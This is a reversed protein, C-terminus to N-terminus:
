PSDPVRHRHRGVRHSAAGALYAPDFRRQFGLQFPVGSAEIDARVAIADALSAALPKECFTPLGRQLAARILVPHDVTSATVVVADAGDLAEDVSACATAGLDTAAAAAREAVVDMIALSEVEGLAQLTRAHLPGIRGAGFLAVRM